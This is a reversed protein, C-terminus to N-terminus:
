AKLASEEDNGGPEENQLVDFFAQKINKMLTDCSGDASGFGTDIVCSGKKLTGDKKIELENLDGIMSRLKEENEAVFDYDDASVKLLVHEHNSCARITERAIGLIAEQHNRVEDGLVKAAINVALNVIDQELSNLTEEYKREPKRNRKPLCSKLAKM